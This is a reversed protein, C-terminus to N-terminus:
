ATNKGVLIADEDARWQHVLNRSEEGSIWKSDFNERAIFGDITQAWKLIIYPRANKMSMFFRRNLELGEKELLGTEVEIGADQLKKIGGGAVLPNTDLNAIVVKKVKSEILLNACPPTKGFHSCPELTVYVSSGQLLSKNSISNIANVEAHAQGYKKHWGEGIIKDDHVIVCGVMPNPSVNGLGLAALDLARHMYLEKSM